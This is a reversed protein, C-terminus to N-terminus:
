CVAEDTKGLRSTEAGEECGALHPACTPYRYTLKTVDAEDAVSFCLSSTPLNARPYYPNTFYKKM